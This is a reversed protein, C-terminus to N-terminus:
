LGGLFAVLAARCAEPTELWPFHGCQELPYVEAQPLLEALDEVVRWPIPDDRGHLVAAPGQFGRLGAEWGADDYAAQIDAMVRVNVTRHYYEMRPPPGRYAPSLYAPLALNFRQRYLEARAAQDRTRLILSDLRRIAAAQSPTFRERLVADFVPRWGPRVGAPSLLTLRAVRQPHRAAFHVALVAGASHGLLDLREVGLHRRLAELDDLNAALTFPGDSRSHRCGRQDYTCVTHREALWEVLATGSFYDYCGPGGHLLVIPSGRGRCLGWLEVDPLRIRLERVPSAPM